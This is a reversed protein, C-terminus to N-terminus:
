QKIEMATITNTGTAGAGIYFLGSGSRRKLTPRYIIQSTTSPSDVFCWTIVGRDLNEKGRFQGAGQGSGDNSLLFHVETGGINRYFDM